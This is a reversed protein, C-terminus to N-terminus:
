PPLGVDRTLSQVRAQATDLWGLAQNRWRAMEIVTELSPTLQTDTLEKQRDLLTAYSERAKEPQGLREYVLGIQYLVPIQWAPSDDVAALHQYLSLATAFEGDQYFQNAIKNGARKKWYAWVGPDQRARESQDELLALIERQAEVGRGERHYTAALLFRVEPVWASNPHLEIFRRAELITEGHRQLRAHCAVLKYHVPERNLHQPDRKLLRQFSDAAEAYRHLAFQTEGIECQAQLVIREYDEIQEFQLNLASTMVAFFKALALGTAGMERYLIGQRLLVEPVSPHQSYLSTYQAYARQAQMWDKADQELLALELLAARRLESPVDRGGLLAMLTRRALDFNQERRHQRAFGLENHLNQRYSVSGASDTSRERPLLHPSELEGPSSASPPLVGVVRQAAEPANPESEVTADSEPLPPDDLALAHISASSSRPPDPIQVSELWSNEEARGLVMGVAAATIWCLVLRNRDLQAARAM